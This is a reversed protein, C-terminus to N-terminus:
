NVFIILIYVTINKKSFAAGEHQSVMSMPGVAAAADHFLFLGGGRTKAVEGRLIRRGGLAQAPGTAFGLNGCPRGRRPPISPEVSGQLELPPFPERNEGRSGIRILTAFQVQVTCLPYALNNGHAKAQTLEIM